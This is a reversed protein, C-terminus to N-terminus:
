PTETAYWAELSWRDLQEYCHLPEPPIGRLQKRYVMYGTTEWLPICRVDAWIHRHLTQVLEVAGNWDSTRDLGILEQKLWDPFPKLDAVDAHPQVTLFPWLEVIPEDMQLTRYAIDWGAADASGAEVPVVEIGIRKWIAILKKVVEGAVPEPPVAFRLPPIEGNMQSSAAITMALAASLDYDQKLLQPSNAYSFSPFPTNVVKGHSAARRDRISLELAKVRDDTPNEKLLKQHENIERRLDADRLVVDILLTDRDISQLLARRLERFELPRSKPNFQLVHTTPVAYSQIFFDKEVQKDSQLRRIIWDPLDPLMWVDGRLLGRTAREHNPYLREIVEAVHYHALGEPEMRLRRYVVESDSMSAVPFGGMLSFDASEGEENYSVPKLPNGPAAQQPAAAEPPLDESSLKPHFGVGTANRLIPEIRTPVRRFTLSFEFPSEFEVTSVYAALREDYNPSAPDIQDTLGATLAAAGLPPQSEWPQRTQTLTFRMRRGLDFPEWEDLYSTRYHPIGGQFDDIEFLRNESLRRGRIEADGDFPTAKPTGPLRVVGVRLRQYREALLKYPAKLEVARPWMGVSQEAMTTAEAHKGTQGLTKAQNMLDNAKAVYEAALSEFM